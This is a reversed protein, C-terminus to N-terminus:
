PHRQSSCPPGDQEGDGRHGPRERVRQKRRDRPVGHIDNQTHRNRRARRAVGGVPQGSAGRQDDDYHAAPRKALEGASHASGSGSLPEPVPQGAVDEGTAEPQRLPKGGSVQHAPHDAACRIRAACRGAANQSHGGDDRRGAADDSEGQDIGPERHGEGGPKGRESDHEMREDPVYGIDSDTILLGLTRDGRSQDIGCHAQVAAREPSDLRPDRRLAGNDNRQKLDGDEPHGPNLKGGM